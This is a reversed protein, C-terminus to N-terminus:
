WFLSFFNKVCTDLDIKASSCGSLWVLLLLSTWLTEFEKLGLFFSSLVVFTPRWILVVGSISVNMMSLESDLLFSAIALLIVSAAELFTHHTRERFEIEVEYPQVTRDHTNGFVMTTLVWSWYISAIATPRETCFISLLAISSSQKTRRSFIQATWNLSAFTNCVFSIASSMNQLSFNGLLFLVHNIM